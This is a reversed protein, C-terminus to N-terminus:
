WLLTNSSYICKLKLNHYRNLLSYLIAHLHKNSCIENRTKNKSTSDDFPFPILSTLLRTNEDMTNMACKGVDPLKRGFPICHTPKVSKDRESKTVM